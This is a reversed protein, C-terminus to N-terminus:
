HANEGKIVATVTMLLIKLDLWISWSNIYHLDFEVRKKMKDRTDTEGRAGNVQAWGTIGPKVKYRAAYRELRSFDQNLRVMDAFEEDLKLPHPRSGVLSMDGILVNFLQPLEDLSWRRLHKGIWTIDKDGKKVQHVKGDRKKAIMTRFKLVNIVKGNLGHREQIFFIDGPSTWRILGAIILMPIGAIALVPLVVFIDLARKFAVGWESIPSEQLNYLGLGGLYSISPRKMNLAAEGPCFDVHATLQGLELLIEQVRAGGYEPLAVIVRDIPTTKAFKVLEHLKSTLNQDMFQREDNISAISFTEVLEAEVEKSSIHEQLKGCLPEVGIIVVRKNFQGSQSLYQLGRIATKRAVVLTAFALVFWITLWGRSYLGAVKLMFGVALLLFFSLILSRFIRASQLPRSIIKDPDYHGRQHMIFYSLLAGTFGVGLYSFEPEIGNLFIDVYVLKAVWATVVVLFAEYLAIMDVLVQRSLPKSIHSEQSSQGQKPFQYQQLSNIISSASSM